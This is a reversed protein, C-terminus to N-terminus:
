EPLYEWFENYFTLDNIHMFFLEEGVSAYLWFKKNGPTTPYMYSQSFMNGDYRKTVRYIQDNGIVYSMEWRSSNHVACYMNAPGGSVIKRSNSSPDFEIFSYDSPIYILNGLKVLNGEWLVPAPLNSSQQWQNIAPDYVWCESAVSSGTVVQGGVVYAKGNYKFALSNMRGPGPLSAKQTWANIAPDYEYLKNSGNGMTQMLGGFVYAKNNIVFCATRTGWEPMNAVASWKQEDVDFKWFDDMGIYVANGISFMSGPRNKKGPYDPMKQFTNPKYNGPLVTVPSPGCIKKGSWEICVDGNTANEPIWVRILTDHVVEASALAGGVYLTYNPLSDKSLLSYFGSGVISVVATKRAKLPTIKTISVPDPLDNKQCSFFVSCMVLMFSIMHIFSHYQSIRNMIM